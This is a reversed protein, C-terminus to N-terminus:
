SFKLREQLERLGRTMPLRSGDTLVVLHEGNFAPELHQIRDLRV